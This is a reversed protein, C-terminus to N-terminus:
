DTLMELLMNYDEKTNINFYAKAVTFARIKGGKKLLVNFLDVLEKEGRKTNIPVEDLLRLVNNKCIINGTGKLNNFPFEPKEVFNYMFGEEYKFTYTKRVEDLDATEIIGILCDYESTKFRNIARKYNNDVLFEDGLVMFFDSKGIAWKASELANILGKPERQICYSVRKFNCENGVERMITEAEYGVVVICETIEDLECLREVNQRIISRNSVKLLCKNGGKTVENIRKGRGGALVVGKMLEDGENERIIM